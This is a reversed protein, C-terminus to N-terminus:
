LIFKYGVDPITHLFDKGFRRRLRMVFNNLASDSMPEYEYVYALFMDRTLVCQKNECLMEFFLIEKKNLEFEQNEKTLKKLTKHYVYGDKLALSPNQASLIKEICHELTQTLITYNIPKLLYGSLGLTMARFLFEEDKHGSLVVIPIDSNQLRVQKIFDLGNEEKLHIDCIILDIKKKKLCGHAENISQAVCVEAVFMKFLAVAHDIFDTNDELLLLRKDALHHLM